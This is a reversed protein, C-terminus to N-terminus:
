VFLQYYAKKNLYAQSSQIEKVLNNIAKSSIKPAM